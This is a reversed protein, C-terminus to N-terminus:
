TEWAEQGADHELPVVALVETGSGGSDISLRGHVLQARERMSALGIHGRERAGLPDTGDFGCGDDRVCLEVSGDSRKLKVWVINAKAHQGANIVAEQAIGFLAGSVDNPLNDLREISLEPEMEYRRAWAPVSQELAEPLGLEDFAAPGLGMMEERMERINRETIRRAEALTANARAYDGKAIARSVSELMMDMSTLEQVPGDHLAQAIQRRMRAEAEITRRTLDRARLRGASETTRLRGVFVAAGAASVAFVTEYVGLQDAPFPAQVLAIPVLVAIGLLALAFGKYEGQLHAHAVFFFMALFRIAVYSHPAVIQAGALVVIDVVALWPSLALRPARRGIVTLAIGWPLSGLGIFLALAARDPFAFIALAVLASISVLVRIPGFLRVPESSELPVSPLMM